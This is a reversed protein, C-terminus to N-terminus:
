RAWSFLMGATISKGNTIIRQSFTSSGFTNDKLSDDLSEADITIMGNGTGYAMGTLGATNATGGSQIALQRGMGSVTFTARNFAADTVNQGCGAGVVQADGCSTDGTSQCGETNLSDTYIGKMEIDTAYRFATGTGIIDSMYSADRGMSRSLYSTASYSCNSQSIGTYDGAAFVNDGIAISQASVSGAATIASFALCAVILILGVRLGVSRARGKSGSM